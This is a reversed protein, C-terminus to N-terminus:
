LSDWLWDTLYYTGWDDHNKIKFSLVYWIFLIVDIVVTLPLLLIKIVSYLFLKM